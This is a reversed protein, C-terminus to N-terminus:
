LLYYIGLAQPWHELLNGTEFLRWGRITALPVSAWTRIFAMKHRHNHLVKLPERHLVQRYVLFVICTFMETERRVWEEHNNRKDLIDQPYTHANWHSLHIISLCTIVIIITGQTEFFNGSKFERYSQSINVSKWFKWVAPFHIFNAVFSM